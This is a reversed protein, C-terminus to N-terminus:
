QLFSLFIIPPFMDKGFKEVGSHVTSSVTIPAIDFFSKKNQNKIKLVPQIYNNARPVSNRSPTTKGTLKVPNALIYIIGNRLFPLQFHSLYPM